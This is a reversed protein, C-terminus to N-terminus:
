NKEDRQAKRFKEFLSLATKYDSKTDMDILIEEREIPFLRIEKQHQEFVNKLTTNTPDAKIIQDAVVGSFVVPHGKRGSATPVLIEPARYQAILTNIIDSTILVNDGLGLLINEGKALAIGKQISSFMGLEYNENIAIKLKLSDFLREVFDQIFDADKGLVLVVEDLNSKLYEGLLLEIITKGKIKLLIKPEGMRESKGAALLIGTIM